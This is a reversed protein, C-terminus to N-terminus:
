LQRWISHGGLTNRSTRISNPKNDTHKKALIDMERTATFGFFQLMKNSKVAKRREWKIKAVKGRTILNVFKVKDGLEQSSPIDKAEFKYPLYQYKIEGAFNGLKVGLPNLIAEEQITKSIDNWLKNLEADKMHKYEPFKKRFQSWMPINIVNYTYKAKKLRPAKKNNSYM